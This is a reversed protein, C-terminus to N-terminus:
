PVRKVLHELLAAHCGRFRRRQATLWGTFVPSRDIELGDLFDGNFLGALARQREPALTGIGEEIALAIEIADVFCDSLDLRITDGFRSSASAAAWSQEQDQQPVL